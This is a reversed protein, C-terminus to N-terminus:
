CTLKALGTDASEYLTIGNPLRASYSELAKESLLKEQEPTLDALCLRAEVRCRTCVTLMSSALNNVTRECREATTQGDVLFTLAMSGTSGAAAPIDIKLYPYHLARPQVIALATFFMLAAAAALIGLSFRRPPASRPVIGVEPIVGREPNM